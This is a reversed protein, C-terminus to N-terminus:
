VPWKWQNENPQAVLPEWAKWRLMKRALILEREAQLILEEAQGCNIQDEVQKMDNQSNVVSLRSQVIKQTHKRYAANDPMKELTRLTKDYLVKLTKHPHKAVELGTLGTTKKLLGRAAM